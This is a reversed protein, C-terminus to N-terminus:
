RLITTKGSKMRLRITTRCEARPFSHGLMDASHWSIGQVGCEQRSMCIISKDDDEGIVKVADTNTAEAISLLLMLLWFCLRGLCM